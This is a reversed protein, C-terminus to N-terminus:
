RHAVAFTTKGITLRHLARQILVEEESDVPDLAEDLLIIRPNKLVVRAIAIQQREGDSLEVGEGVRTSYGDAYSMIRDHIEADKCAEIVEHDSAGQKAYRINELITNDFIAPDTPIVGIARRLSSLTM